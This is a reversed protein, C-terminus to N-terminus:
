MDHVQSSPLTDIVQPRLLALDQPSVLFKAKMAPFVLKRRMVEPLMVRSVLWNLWRFQVGNVILQCRVKLEDMRGMAYFLDTGRVILYLPGNLECLRARMYIQWGGILDLKAIGLIGGSYTMETKLAMIRDGTTGDKSPCIIHQIHRFAPSGSGMQVDVLRTGTIYAGTSRSRRMNLVMEEFFADLKSKLVPLPGLEAITWKLVLNLWDCSEKSTVNEENEEAELIRQVM